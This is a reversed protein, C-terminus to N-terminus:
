AVPRRDEAYLRLAFAGAPHERFSRVEDAVAAPLEAIDPLPTGYGPAVVLPASMAAFTLDAATFTDGALYRRGDRLRDAVQDFTRRVTALGQEVRADNIELYTVLKSKVFPYAVRLVARQFRPARGANARLLLRPAQMMRHYAWRRAEVGHDGAFDRELALVEERAASDAPYLARGAAAHSSAHAVIDASDLLSGEDTVLVPVTRRGGARRVARTHFGQLHQEEQYPVGCRDLAWRARECYHSIPITVLRRM